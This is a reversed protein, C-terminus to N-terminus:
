LLCLFVCTVPKFWCLVFWVVDDNYSVMLIFNFCNTILELRLNFNMLNFKKKRFRRKESKDAWIKQCKASWIIKGTLTSCHGKTTARNLSIWLQSKCCSLCFLTWDTDRTLCRGEGCVHLRRWSNPQPEALSLALLATAQQQKQLPVHSRRASSNLESLCCLGGRAAQHTCAYKNYCSRFVDCM